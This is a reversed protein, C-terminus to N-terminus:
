EVFGVRTLIFGREAGDSPSRWLKDIELSVLVPEDTKIWEPPAAKEYTRVEPKDFSVTDLVHSGITVRIKVAGTQEFTLEPITIEALLKKHKADPVDFQFVARKMCWRWSGDNLGLVGDVIHREADASNMAIFHSLKSNAEIEVPNRQMPPRYPEPYRVCGTLAVSGALLLRRTM